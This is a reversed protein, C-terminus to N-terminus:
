PLRNNMDIEGRVQMVLTFGLDETMLGSLASFCFRDTPEYHVPGTPRPRRVTNEHRLVLLEADKAAKSRLVVSSVSLV